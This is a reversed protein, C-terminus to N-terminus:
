LEKRGELAKSITLTDAYDLKGGVPLGFALRTLKINENELIKAIYLATTEGEVTPDTALILEEVSDDKIRKLLSSINIDDVGIGKTPCILGNLSHYSGNYSKLKEFAYIDKPSAVVIIIKKNRTEDNCIECKDDETYMGCIPCTHINEKIGILANSFEDISEKDWDILSYALREASKRGVSPLKALSDILRELSKLEKMNSVM